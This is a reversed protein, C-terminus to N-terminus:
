EDGYVETKKLNKLYDRLEETTMLRMMRDMQVAYDMGDCFIQRQEKTYGKLKLLHAEQRTICESFDARRKNEESEPSTAEGLIWNLIKKM